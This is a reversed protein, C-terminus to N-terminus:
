PNSLSPGMEIFFLNKSTDDPTSKKVADCDVGREEEHLAYARITFRKDGQAVMVLLNHSKECFSPYIVNHVKGFSM